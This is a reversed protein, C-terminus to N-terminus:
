IDLASKAMQKATAIAVTNAEYARAAAMMDVMETVVDIDPYQVYGEGDADPHNPDHVIRFNTAPDVIEELSVSPADIEQRLGISHGRLHRSNTQSLRTGARKVMQSFSTREQAESVVVRKRRYPGGENTRTTEANAINQATTNMRSRQVSLGQSSIDIAGLIGSM